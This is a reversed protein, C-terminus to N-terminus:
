TNIASSARDSERNAFARRLASGAKDVADTADPMVGLKEIFGHIQGAYDHIEVSVQDSRLRSAYEVAEARLFDHEATVVVAPPAGRLTEAHLPSVVPSRRMLEDPVYADWLYAIREYTTRGYDGRGAFDSYSEVFRQKATTDMTSDLVPYVLLQLALDVRLDRARLAAAAALNGGASDGGVAVRAFNQRAWSIAAWSDDLAAPFPHEPALRYDISLVACGARNALARAVGECADLDGLMWGGGHMWVLVDEEGGRPRYLRAAVGGADVAEVSTVHELPGRCALAHDHAQKRLATIDRGWYNVQPALSEFYRRVQASPVPAIPTTM